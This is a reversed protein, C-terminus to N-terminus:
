FQPPANPMLHFQAFLLLMALIITATSVAVGPKLWEMFKIQGGFDKEYMGMAVINATSGIITANGYLTGGFLMAWWFPFTYVGVKQIETLIPIFTAVALVNDMFATLLCIAATFINILFFSGGHTLRIMGDAIQQTVGVYKLTGVSAFLALFFTLTWWDVRRAFFDRADNAKLAICIAGFLLATGILLTNKQISFMEEFQHHFILCLITSLFLVWCTQISSKKYAVHKLEHPENGSKKMKQKLELMEKKFLLFCILITVALCAVSIPTAWRVFDMFSLGARLAIMVGIPNGVATASSGINTAFVIMLIFPAPSLKYRKAIHFMASVMFLVSTVEGMLAAFIMSLTLLVTILLYPREGISDIAKAVLYEFFHDEELYGIVIMMGVLFLIIDLGAFEIVHPIDLLNTALLVTIGGFAFALRFKWYFLTGCIIMLFILSSIIQQTTFSFHSLLFAVATLICAIILPTKFQKM